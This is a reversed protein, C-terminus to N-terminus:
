GQRAVNWRSGASLELEVANRGGGQRRRSSKWSSALVNLLAAAEGLEPAKSLAFAYAWLKTVPAKYFVNDCVSDGFGATRIMHLMYLGTRLAGLISCLFSVPLMGAAESASVYALRVAQVWGWGGCEAKSGGSSPWPSPGCCWRGECTWSRGSEWSTSAPSSSPPTCAM